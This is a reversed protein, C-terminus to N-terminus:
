VVVCIKEQQQQKFVRNVVSKLYKLGNEFRHIKEFKESEEFNSFVYTKYFM